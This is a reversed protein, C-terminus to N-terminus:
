ERYKKLIETRSGEEKDADKIGMMEEFMGNVDVDGIAKQIHKIKVKGSM